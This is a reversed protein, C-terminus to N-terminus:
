LYLDTKRVPGEHDAFWRYDISLSVETGSSGNSGQFLLKVNVSHFCQSVTIQIHAGSLLFDVFIDLPRGDM